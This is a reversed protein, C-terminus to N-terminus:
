LLATFSGCIASRWCRAARRRRLWCNTWLRKLRRRVGTTPNRRLRRARRQSRARANGETRLIVIVRLPTEPAAEWARLVDPAVLPPPAAALTPQGADALAMGVLLVVGWLLSVTIVWGMGRWMLRYKM